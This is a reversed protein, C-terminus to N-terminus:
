QGFNNVLQKEVIYTQHRQHSSDIFPDFYLVLWLCKFFYFIFCGYVKILLFVLTLGKYVQTM